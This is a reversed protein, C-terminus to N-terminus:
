FNCRNFFFCLCCYVIICMKFIYIYENILKCIIMINFYRRVIMYSDISFIFVKILVYYMLYESVVNM